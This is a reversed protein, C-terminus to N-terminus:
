EAGVQVKTVFAHFKSSDKENISNLEKIVDKIEQSTRAVATGTLQTGQFIAYTIKMKSRSTQQINISNSKRLLKKIKTRNRIGM